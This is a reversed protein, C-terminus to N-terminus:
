DSRPLWDDSRPLPHRVGLLTVNVASAGGLEELVDFSVRSGQEIHARDEVQIGSQHLFCDENGSDCSVFGHGKASDFWKVTGDM